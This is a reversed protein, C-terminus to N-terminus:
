LFRARAGGRARSLAPVPSHVRGRLGHRRLRSWRTCRHPPQRAPPLRAHTRARGPGCWGAAGLEGADQSVFQHMLARLPKSDYPTRCRHSYLRPPPLLTMRCPAKGSLHLWANCRRGFLCHNTRFLNMAHVAIAANGAGYPQNCFPMSAWICELM